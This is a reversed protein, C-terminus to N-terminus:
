GALDSLWMIAGVLGAAFVSLWFIGIVRQKDTPTFGAKKKQAMKIELVLLVMGAGFVIAMWKFM